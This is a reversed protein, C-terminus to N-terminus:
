ICYVLSLSKRALIWNPETAFLGFSQYRPDSFALSAM